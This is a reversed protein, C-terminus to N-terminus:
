ESGLATVHKSDESQCEMQFYEVLNLGDRTEDLEDTVALTKDFAKGSSEGSLYDSGSSHKIGFSVDFGTNEVGDVSQLKLDFELVDVAV